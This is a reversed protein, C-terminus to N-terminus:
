TSAEDFNAVLDPVEDDDIVVTAQSARM